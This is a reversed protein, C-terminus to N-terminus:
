LNPNADLPQKWRCWIKEFEQWSEEYEKKNEMKPEQIMLIPVPPFRHVTKRYATIMWKIFRNIYTTVLLIRVVQQNVVRFDVRTRSERM